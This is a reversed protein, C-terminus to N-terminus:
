QVGGIYARRAYLVLGPRLDRRERLFRDVVREVRESFILQWHGLGHLAGERCAEHTLSLCREMVRIYESAEHSRSTDGPDGWAPFVDWWMCCIVNLPNNEEGLHSLGVMCRRAFCKEYLDYISRITQKRAPWLAQAGVISCAQRIRAFASHRSIM